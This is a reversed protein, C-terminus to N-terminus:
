HQEKRRHQGEVFRTHVNAQRALEAHVASVEATRKDQPTTPTDTAAAPLVDSESNEISRHPPNETTKKDSM